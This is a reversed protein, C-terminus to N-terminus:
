NSTSSTEDIEGLISRFASELEASGQIRRGHRLFNRVKRQYDPEKRLLTRIKSAVKKQSDKGQIMIPAAIAETLVILDRKPLVAIVEFLDGSRRSAGLSVRTKSLLERLTKGVSDLESEPLVDVLDALNRLLASFQSAKM